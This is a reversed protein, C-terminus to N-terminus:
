LHEVACCKETQFISKFNGSSDEGPTKHICICLEFIIRGWFIKGNCELLAKSFVNLIVSSIKEPLEIIAFLLGFSMKGPFFM